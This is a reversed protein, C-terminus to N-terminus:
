ARSPFAPIQTGSWSSALVTRIHRMEEEVDAPTAVTMAVRRKLVKRYQSRLRHVAVQVNTASIGLEAATARYLSAEAPTSLYTKLHEFLRQHGTSVYEDELEQFTASVLTTAWEVEYLQAPTSGSSGEEKRDLEAENLHYPVHQYDGGRKKARRQKFQDRLFNDLSSLLFTRFRGKSQDVAAFWSQRLLHVFFDQVLDEAHHTANGLRCIHAYLPYWYDECLKERAAHALRDDGACARITTWHTSPFTNARNGSIRLAAEM